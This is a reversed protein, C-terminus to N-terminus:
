TELGQPSKLRMQRRVLWVRYALLSTVSYYRFLLLFLHKSTIRPFSCCRVTYPFPFQSHSLPNGVFLLVSIVVLYSLAPIYKFLTLLSLTASLQESDSHKASNLTYFISGQNCCTIFTNYMASSGRYYATIAVSAFFPLLLSYRSIGLAVFM